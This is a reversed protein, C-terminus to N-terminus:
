LRKQNWIVLLFESLEHVRKGLTTIHYHDAHKTAFKLIIMQDLRSSRIDDISVNRRAMQNALTAKSCPGVSQQAHFIVELINVSVSKKCIGILPFILVYHLSCYIYLGTLIGTCFSVNVQGLYIALSSLTTTYLIGIYLHIRNSRAYADEKSATKRIIITFTFILAFFLALYISLTEIVSEYVPFLLM